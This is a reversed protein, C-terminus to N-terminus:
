GRSKIQAARCLYAESLIRHFNEDISSDTKVKIHNRPDLETVPEFHNMIEPLHQIRADSLGPYKEREKLRSLLTELKGECETFILNSDMDSALQAVEERWV